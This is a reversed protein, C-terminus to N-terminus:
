AQEILICSGAAATLTGSAVAMTVVYNIAATSPTTLDVIDVEESATAAATFSVRSTVVTGSINTERVRITDTSSNTNSKTGSLTIKIKRGVQPMRIPVNLATIVAETTISGQNSAMRRYGLVRRLPDRPAILYGLSDTVTYPLSSAIPLVKDQQGQNVSGANAINSAGTVIIANRIHTTDAFTGTTLTSPSAANNTVETYIIAATGDGNDAFDVYTDKSATFTRASVAAVTLRKGNIYVVGSTMSANRTSGYSDGSWVCGSEIFNYQGVPASAWNIATASLWAKVSNLYDKLLTLTWKKTTSASDDVIPQEDDDSASTMPPLASIKPM